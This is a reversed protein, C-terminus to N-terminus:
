INVSMLKIDTLGVSLFPGGPGTRRRYSLDRLSSAGFEIKFVANKIGTRKDNCGSRSQLSQPLLTNREILEANLKLWLGHFRALFQTSM